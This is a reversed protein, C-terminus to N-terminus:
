IPVIKWDLKTLPISLCGNILNIVSENFTLKLTELKKLKYIDKTIIFNDDCINCFVLILHKLYISNHVLYTIGQTALSMGTISLYDLRPCGYSLCKLSEFTM